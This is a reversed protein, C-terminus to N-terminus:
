AKHGEPPNEYGSAEISGAGMWGWVLVVDESSTNNFGHWVGRPSYVVDGEGSPELGRCARHGVGVVRAVAEAPVVGVEGEPRDRGEVVVVGVEVEEEEPGVPREEGLAAAETGRLDDRLHDVERREGLALARHVADRRVAALEGVVRHRRRAQDLRALRALQAADIGDADAVFADLEPASGSDWLREFEEIVSAPKNM